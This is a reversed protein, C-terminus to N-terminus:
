LFDAMNQRFAKSPRQAVKSDERDRRLGKPPALLLLAQPVSAMDIPLYPEEVMVPMKLGLAVQRAFFELDNSYKAVDAAWNRVTKPAGTNHALDDALRRTYYLARTCDALEAFAPDHTVSVRQDIDCGYEPRESQLVIGSGIPIAIEHNSVM